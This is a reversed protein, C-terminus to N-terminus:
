DMSHDYDIEGDAWKRYERHECKSCLSSPAGIPLMKGCEVCRFRLRGMKDREPCEGDGHGCCPYDECRPM